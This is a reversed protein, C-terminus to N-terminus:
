LFPRVTQHLHRSLDDLARLEELRRAVTTAITDPAMEEARLRTRGEAVTEPVYLAALETLRQVVAAPDLM